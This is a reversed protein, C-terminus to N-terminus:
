IGLLTSPNKNVMLEIAEEGIGYDLMHELYSGFGEIPRVNDAQGLDSALITSEPGVEKISKAIISPDLSRGVKTTSFYCREFYAGYPLLEKQEANSLWTIDFEPHTVVFKSLGVKGVEKALAKTELLSLHGTALIINAEKVLRIIQVVEPIVAGSADLICIGNSSSGELENTQSAPYNTQLYRVHNRASVTPMWIVKSGLAIAKKVAEPNIGGTGENLVLGGFVNIGPVVKEVIKALPATVFHHSKLLTAKMGVKKAELALEVADLKRPIIDPACHVHMDISNLLVNSVAHTM